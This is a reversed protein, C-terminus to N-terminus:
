QALLAPFFCLRNSEIRRTSQFSNDLVDTAVLGVLPKLFSVVITHLPISPTAGTSCRCRRTVVARGAKNEESSSSVPIVDLSLAPLYPLGFSGAVM